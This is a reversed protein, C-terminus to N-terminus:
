LPALFSRPHQQLAIAVRRRGAPTRMAMDMPVCASCLTRKTNAWSCGGYCAHDDTCRCWRCRGPQETLVINM